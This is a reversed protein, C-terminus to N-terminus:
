RFTDERPFMTGGGLLVDTPTSQGSAILLITGAVSFAYPIAAVLVARATTTSHVERLGAAMAWVGWPGALLGLVPMWVLLSMASLYGTVRLTAGYGGSGPGVLLRVLIQYVAAGVVLTALAYLPSLGLLWLVWLVAGAAGENGVVSVEDLTGSAAAFVLDYTGAVLVALAQCAVAYTVPGAFSGEWRVAGFFRAPCLLVGRTAALFSGVPREPKFGFPSKAATM